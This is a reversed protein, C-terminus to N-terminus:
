PVTAFFADSPNTAGDVAKGFFPQFVNGNTTM